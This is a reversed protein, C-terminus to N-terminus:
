SRRCNEYLQIKKFDMVYECFKNVIEGEYGNVANNEWSSPLWNADRFKQLQSDGCFKEENKQGSLKM